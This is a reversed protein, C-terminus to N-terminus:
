VACVSGPVLYITVLTPSNPNVQMKLEKMRWLVRLILDILLFM